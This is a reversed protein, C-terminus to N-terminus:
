KQQEWLLRRKELESLKNSLYATIVFGDAKESEKYIVVLFKDTEELICGKAILEGNRGEVIKEPNEITELIEYYFDAIEPHGVSIHMWREETLRIPTKTVSIAIDM